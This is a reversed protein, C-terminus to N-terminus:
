GGSGGRKPKGAFLAAARSHGVRELLPAATEAWGHIRELKQAAEHAMVDLHEGM